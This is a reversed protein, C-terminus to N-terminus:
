PEAPRGTETKRRGALGQWGQWFMAKDVSFRGLSALLLTVCGMLYLFALEGSGQGREEAKYLTILKPYHGFKGFGDRGSRPDAVRLLTVLCL